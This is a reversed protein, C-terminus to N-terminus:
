GEGLQLVGAAVLYIALLVLVASMAMRTVAGANHLKAVSYAGGLLFGGAAILVVGFNM